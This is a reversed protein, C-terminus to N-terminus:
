KKLVLMLWIMFLIGAIICLMGSVGDVAEMLQTFQEPTM